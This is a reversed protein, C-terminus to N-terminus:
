GINQEALHSSSVSFEFNLVNRQFILMETTKNFVNITLRIM